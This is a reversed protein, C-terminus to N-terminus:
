RHLDDVPREHGLAGVRQVLLTSVREPDRLVGGLRLDGPRQLLLVLALAHPDGRHVRDRHAALRAAGALASDHAVRRAPLLGDHGQLGAAQFTQEPSDSLMGILFYLAVLGPRRKMDVGLKSSIVAVSGSFLRSSGSLFLAPRFLWPRMVVRWRPPSPRRWYRLISKRRSLAPTGPLPAVISYSGFRVARIASM